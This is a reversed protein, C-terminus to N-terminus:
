MLVIDYQEQHYLSEVQMSVPKGIFDSLMAMSQSEEELFLDIVTQSALIRFERTEDFQRAERLIERLIEFCVTRATKIEGRGQCMPCPECLVHALSERTRKRTMEVLGLQTFGSVTMRTRDRALAKKFEGLVADRHEINMMDIFDVIIIGGLNRLRLQRAIAQSAELNTKYITDDFNRTGVYGGTNVDITTMAETQDIILYGGSKLEVRRGLAREIEADISYLDFLPREGTYHVLKGAVRAVFQAAFQELKQFNERSDVQIATTEETAIDRLVRQALSLEQYLLYPAGSQLRRELIRGWLVRLYDLDNSLDQETADEASTRIIYGGKEDPPVLRKLTDRLQTREAEDEIRQSIGIHPDQPLYVLMRGALSVQTSLRAGKSGIPDKVVQVLVTDGEHILREIPPPKEQTFQRYEWIDAVHLFAARELGIDVFASQMGPLVRAVRGLYINGVLGRTASREIHLEQVVGANLVAVRTEQPTINILIDDMTRVFHVCRSQRHVHVEDAVRQARWVSILRSREPAAAREASHCLSASWGAVGRM